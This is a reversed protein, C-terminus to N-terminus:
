KLLGSRKYNEFSNEPIENNEFINRLSDTLNLGDRIRSERLEYSNTYGRVTVYVDSVFKMTILSRLGSLKREGLIM